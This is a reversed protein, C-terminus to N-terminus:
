KQSVPTALISGKAKDNSIGPVAAALPTEISVLPALNLLAAFATAAPPRETPKDELYAFVNFAVFSILVPILTVAAPAVVFM